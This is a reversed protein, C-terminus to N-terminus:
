WGKKNRSAVTYNTTPTAQTWNTKFTHKGQDIKRASGKSWLSELIIYKRLELYKYCIICYYMFLRSALFGNTFASPNRCGKNRTAYCWVHLYTCMNSSARKEDVFWSYQGLSTWLSAINWVKLGWSNVRFFSEKVTLFWISSTGVDWSFSRCSCRTAGHQVLPSEGQCGPQLSNWHRSCRCPCM